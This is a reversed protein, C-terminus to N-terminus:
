WKVWDTSWLRYGRIMENEDRWEGHGDLFVANAGTQHNNALTDTGDSAAKFWKAGFANYTGSDGWGDAMVLQDSDVDAEQGAMNINPIPTGYDGGPYASEPWRRAQGPWGYWWSSSTGNGHAAAIRYTTGIINSAYNVFGEAVGGQTPCIFVKLAGAAAAGTSPQGQGLYTRVPQSTGADSRFSTGQGWDAISFNGEFDQSYMLLAVNSQRLQSACLAVKATERAKALAPLLISVLLAIISIVVLLEILTFARKKSM